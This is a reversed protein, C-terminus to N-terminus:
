CQIVQHSINYYYKFNFNLNFYMLEKGQLKSLILNIQNLKNKLNSAAPYKMLNYCSIATTFCLCPNVHKDPGIFRITKWMRQVMGRLKLWTKWLSSCNLLFHGSFIGCSPSSLFRSKIKSSGGSLKHARATPTDTHTCTLTHACLYMKCILSMTKQKKEKNTCFRKRKPCKKQTCFILTWRDLSRKYSKFLRWQKLWM